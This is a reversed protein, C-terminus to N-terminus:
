PLREYLILPSGEFVQRAYALFGLAHAVRQSAANSEDIMAAIRRRGHTADFWALIARMAERAIGKGWHDHHVIWGAEPVDDMGQGFGRWSHFVGCNGVLGDHGRLRVAFNGYGYLTWGGVNRLLREFQGAANPQARGLFRRTDDAAVLEVLGDLDARRPVRLELRDTRLVTGPRV